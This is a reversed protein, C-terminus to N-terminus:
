YGLKHTFEHFEQRFLSNRRMELTFIDHGTKVNSEMSLQKTLFNNFESFDSAFNM